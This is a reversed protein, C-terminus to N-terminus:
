AAVIDFENGEPDSLTVWRTGDEDHESQRTAGLAVVRDVEGELDSATLDPHVRNKAAKGEPVKIFMWGPDGKVVAFDPTAGGDVPAGLVAAWFGALAAADQCDFTLHSLTSSM